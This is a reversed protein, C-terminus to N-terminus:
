LADAIDPSGSYNFVSGILALVFERLLIDNRLGDIIRDLILDDGLLMLSIAPRMNSTPVLYARM